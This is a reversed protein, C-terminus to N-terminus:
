RSAGLSLRPFRRTLSLLAPSFVTCNAVFAPTVDERPRDTARATLGSVTDVRVRSGMRVGLAAARPHPCGAGVPRDARDCAATTHFRDDTRVAILRTAVDILEHDPEIPSEPM